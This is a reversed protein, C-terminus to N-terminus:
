SRMTGVIAKVLKKFEMFDVAGSEDEDVEQMLQLWVEERAQYKLVTKLEELTISGSLNPDLLDFAIKLRKPKLLSQHNAAALLFEPFDITGNRDIDIARFVDAALSRSLEAINVRAFAKSLEEPSILGTGSTNIYEFVEQLLQKEKPSLANLAIFTLIALKLPDGGQFKRLNAMVEPMATPLTSAFDQLWPHALCEAATPRENPDKALMASILSKTQPDVREWKKRSFQVGEAIAEQLDEVSLATTFPLTNRLLLYLLVGCSWIDSKASYEGSLAEPATYILQVKLTNESEPLTPKSPGSMAIVKLLINGDDGKFFVINLISLREICHSKSHLYALARILQLALRKVIPESQKEAIVSYDIFKKRDFPESVLYIEYPSVLVTDVKILNPHNLRALSALKTMIERENAATGKELKVILRTTQTVRHLGLMLTGCALEVTKGHIEFIEEVPQTIQKV